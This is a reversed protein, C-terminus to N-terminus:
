DNEIVGVSELYMEIKEIDFSNAKIDYVSIINGDDYLVFIPYQKFTFNNITFTGNKINDSVDLYLIDDFLNYEKILSSLENEFKGYDNDNNTIYIFSDNNEVVYNDIDSYNIVQLYDELISQSEIEKYAVLWLYLYYTISITIIIILTLYIYNKTPIKKKPLIIM